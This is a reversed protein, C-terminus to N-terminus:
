GGAEEAAAVGTLPLGILYTIPPKGPSSSNEGIEWRYHTASLATIIDHLEEPRYTRLCSVLGDFLLEFPIVPVM